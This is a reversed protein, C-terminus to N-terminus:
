HVRFLIDADFLDPKGNRLYPRFRWQQLAKEGAAYLAAPANKLNLVRVLKGHEDVRIRLTFAKTGAAKARAVHPEVVRTALKRAETNSLLSIPAGMTTQFAFTLASEMQMPTGNVYPQFRWQMIQQRAAANLALNDSQLPWVERVRGLKDVSVYVSLTGSTKGERVAPWTIPPAAMAISRATPEAVEQSNLEQAAPTPRDVTFLARGTPVLEDLIKIQAQLKVEPAFDAVIRRAVMRGQFPKYDDFRAKYGPTVVDQLLGRKGRFCFAYALNSQAPPVGSPVAFNACSYSTESDGPLTVSGKFHKLQEAMPLPDFIATVLDRLWLPYYSGKDTESTKDDDVVLTQTFGSSEITRRWHKPSLWSEEITAKYDSGPNATNTVSAKVQFPPSGALTLQSQQVAGAAAEGLSITNDQAAAPLAVAVCLEALALLRMLGFHMEGFRRM